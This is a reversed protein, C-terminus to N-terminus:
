KELLAMFEPSRAQMHALYLPTFGQSNEKNPNACAGLLLKLIRLSGNCVCAHLPTDGRHDSFDMISPFQARLGALYEVCEVRDM